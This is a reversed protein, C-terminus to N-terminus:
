GNGPEQKEKHAIFAQLAAILQRAQEVNIHPPTWRPYPFHDEERLWQKGPEDCFVHCCDLPDASSEIVRVPHGHDDTLEGYIAFGRQTYNM